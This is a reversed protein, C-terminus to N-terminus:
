LHQPGLLSHWPNWHFTNLLTDVMRRVDSAKRTQRSKWGRFLSQMQTAAKIAPYDQRYLIPVSPHKRRWLRQIDRAALNGSVDMYYIYGVDGPHKVPPYYISPHPGVTCPNFFFASNESM